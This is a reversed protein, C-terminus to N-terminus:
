PAAKAGSGPVILERLEEVSLTNPLFEISGDARAALVGGLHLSSPGNPGSNILDIGESVDWDRPELWHIGSNAIEVILLAQGPPDHRTKSPDPSWATQPGVIAVYSTENQKLNSTSECPCRYLVPAIDHLLRNNPGNWPENFRYQAYFSTSELYPIILLRWSHAPNGQADFTCAPPFRGWQSRYSELAIGIMKLNNTCHMKRASERASRAGSAVLGLVAGAAMMGVFATALSFRFPEKSRGWDKPMKNM